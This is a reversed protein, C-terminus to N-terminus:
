CTGCTIGPARMYNLLKRDLSILYEDLWGKINDSKTLLNLILSSSMLYHTLLIDLHKYVFVNLYQMDEVSLYSQDSLLGAQETTLMCDKGQSLSSKIQM